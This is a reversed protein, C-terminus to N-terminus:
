EKLLMEVHLLVLFYIIFVNYSDWKKAFYCIIFTSIITILVKILQKKM